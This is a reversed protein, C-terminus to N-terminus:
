NIEPIILIIYSAIWGILSGDITLGGEGEEREMGQRGRGNGGKGKGKRGKKM